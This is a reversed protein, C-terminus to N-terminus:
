EVEREEGVIRLTEDPTAVTDGPRIKRGRREEPEGNVKVGRSELYIRAEGGGSVVNAFKLLQGLTIFEGQISLTREPKAPAPVFRKVVRRSTRPNSPRNM